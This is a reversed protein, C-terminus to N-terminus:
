RATEKQESRAGDHAPKDCVWVRQFYVWQDPHRSLYREFVALVQPLNAAIDHELDATRQLPQEPEITILVTNDPLRRCFALVLAAGTRLALKLYGDPLRAPQGFFKVLRGAGSVNRDLATAVMENARLARYVTLLPGDIPIFRLGHSERTRRVYQFLREPKLHEAIGTLRYGLIALIQGALDFNGYHASAVVVGKGRSLAQDLHELGRLERVAKRIEDASLAAVRLLDYYNKAQNRYVQRATSQVRPSGVPQGLVHAMNDEVNGRQPSSAYLRAGLWSAAPYGLAPPIHPVVAGALRYLYYSDADQDM